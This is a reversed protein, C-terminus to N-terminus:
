LARRRGAVFLISAGAGLAAIGLVVALVPIQTVAPDGPIPLVPTPLPTPTATAPPPLPLPDTFTLDLRPTFGAPDRPIDYVPTETAQIRGFDFGAPDRPIDTPLFVYVPTETAQIRGFDTVIWFTIREDVFDGDPPGVILTRYSGNDRTTVSVSEYRQCGDVCAVLSFGGDAAEGMVVVNGSYIVPSPVGQRPAAGLIAFGVAVTVLLTTLTLANRRM